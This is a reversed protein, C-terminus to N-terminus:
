FAGFYSESSRAPSNRFTNDFGKVDPAEYGHSASHQPVVPSDLAYTLLACCSLSREINLPQPGGKDMLLHGHTLHAGASLVYHDGLSCVEGLDRLPAHLPIYARWDSPREGLLAPKVKRPRFGPRM